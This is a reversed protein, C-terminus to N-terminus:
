IWSSLWAKGVGQVPLEDEGRLGQTRVKTLCLAVAKPYGEPLQPSSISKLPPLLNGVQGPPERLDFARM